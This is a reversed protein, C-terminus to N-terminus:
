LCWHMDLFCPCEQIFMQSSQYVNQNQQFHKLKEEEQLINICSKKVFPGLVSSAGSVAIGSLFSCRWHCIELHELCHKCEKTMLIIPIGWQSWHPFDSDSWCQSSKLISGSSLCQRCVFFSSMPCALCVFADMKEFFLSIIWYNM